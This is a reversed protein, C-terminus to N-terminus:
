DKYSANVQTIEKNSLNTDLPGKQGVYLVWNLSFYCLFFIYPTKHMMKDAFKQTIKKYESTIEGKLIQSCLAFIGLKNM